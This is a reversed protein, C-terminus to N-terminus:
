RLEGEGGILEEGFVIFYESSAVRLCLVQEDIAM